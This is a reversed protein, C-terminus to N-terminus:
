LKHQMIKTYLPILVWADLAAYNIQSERLPRKSWNSCQEVKCLSKGLLSTVLGSLNCKMSKQRQQLLQLDTFLKSQFCTLYKFSQLIMKLDSKIDFGVKVIQDSYMIEEFKSNLSSKDEVLNDLATLDFICVHKESAVQLIECKPSQLLDWHPLRYMLAVVVFCRSLNYLVKSVNQM